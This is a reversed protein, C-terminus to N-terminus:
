KPSALAIHSRSCAGVSGRPSLPAEEVGATPPMALYAFSWNPDRVLLEIDDINAKIHRRAGVPLYESVYEVIGKNTGDGFAPAHAAFVASVSITNKEKDVKVTDLIYRRAGEELQDDVRSPVFVQLPPTEGHLLSLAIQLRSDGALLLFKRFIDSITYVKGGINYALTAHASIRAEYDAPFGMAAYGHFCLAHVINMWFAIEEEPNLTSPDVALLAKTSEVFELFADHEKVADLFAPDTVLIGVTATADAGEGTAATPLAADDGVQKLAERDYLALVDRLLGSAIANPTREPVEKKKGRPSAVKEKVKNLVVTTSRSKKKKKKKKQSKDVIFSFQNSEPPAPSNDDKKDDDNEKEKGRSSKKKPKEDGADDDNDDDDRNVCNGAAGEAYKVPPAVWDAPPESEDFTVRVQFGEPIVKHSRDKNVKDLDPQSLLVTSEGYLFAPNLWFTFLVIKNGRVKEYFEVKFDGDLEIGECDFAHMEDDAKEATEISRKSSVFLEEITHTKIFFRVDAHHAAKLDKTFAIKRLHRPYNPPYGSKLYDGFYRVYRIQSPITVGKQNFTRAFGYFSMADDANDWQGMYVLLACIMTGTRGKGAKCHVVAINQEDENLYDATHKCFEEMVEFPPANHDDFPMVSVRNYFKAPDYGRESCLNYVWYHDKHYHDLFRLVESYPNRFLAERKESPFGM